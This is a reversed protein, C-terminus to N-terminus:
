KLIRLNLPRGKNMNERERKMCIKKSESYWSASSDCGTSADKETSTFDIM